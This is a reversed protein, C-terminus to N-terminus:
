WSFSYNNLRRDEHGQVLLSPLFDNDQSFDTIGMSPIAPGYNPYLLIQTFYQFNRLSLIKYNFDIYIDIVVLADSM